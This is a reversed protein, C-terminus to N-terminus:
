RLRRTGLALVAGYVWHAVVMTAVRGPHDRSAPPLIRLAPVWGQYSVFWVGTAFAVGAVVAAPTAARALPRSIIGYLAGAVAGFGLHAVTAVAHEEDERAERHTVGEISDEAIEEPPLEPTYGLRRAVLMVASMLFTAGIGSVAGVLLSRIASPM